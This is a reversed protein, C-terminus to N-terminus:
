SLSSLTAMLKFPCPFHILAFICVLIQFVIQGNNSKETNVYARVHRAQVLKTDRM